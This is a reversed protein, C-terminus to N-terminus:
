RRYEPRTGLRRGSRPHSDSAPNCCCSKQLLIDKLDNILLELVHMRQDRKMERM